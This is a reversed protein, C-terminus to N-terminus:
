VSQAVPDVYFSTVSRFLSSASPLAFSFRSNYYPFYHFVVPNPSVSVSFVEGNKIRDTWKIKLIRRWCRTEFGNVVREENEGVTRAESGCVAVRWVWCEMLKKRTKLSLENKCFLQKKIVLCLKLKYKHARYSLRYLSQSRAPRDASRIGTPPPSIKRVHGSRGQLGGLSRYLQYRTNGPPYLPRLTTSVLWGM